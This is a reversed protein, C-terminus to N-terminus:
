LNINKYDINKYFLTKLHCIMKRQHSDVFRKKTKINTPKVCNYINKYSVQSHIVGKDM